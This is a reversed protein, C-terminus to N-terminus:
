TRWCDQAWPLRPGDRQFAGSRVAGSSRSCLLRPSIRAARRSDALEEATGSAMGDTMFLGPQFLLAALSPDLRVKQTVLWRAECIQLGPAMDSGIFALLADVSSAAPIVRCDISKSRSEEAIISVVRDFVVPSGYTFYAVQAGSRARAVVKAAIRRYNDLRDDRNTYEEHLRVLEVDRLEHPLWLSAPERITTFVLDLRGMRDAVGVPLHRSGYRRVRSDSRAKPM